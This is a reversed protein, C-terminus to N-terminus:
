LIRVELDDNMQRMFGLKSTQNSIGYLVRFSSINGAETAGISITFIQFHGEFKIDIYPDFISFGLEQSCWGNGSLRVQSANHTSNFDKLQDNASIQSDSVNYIEGDILPLVTLDISAVTVATCLYVLDLWADHVTM